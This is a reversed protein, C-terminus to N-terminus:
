SRKAGEALALLGELAARVMAADAQRGLQGGAAGQAAILRAGILRDLWAPNDDPFWYFDLCLSQTADYSARGANKLQADLKQFREGGPDAGESWAEVRGRRDEDLYDAVGVASPYYSWYRRAYDRGADRLVAPDIRDNELLGVAWARGIPDFVQQGAKGDQFRAFRARLRQVHEAGHDFPAVSIRKGGKRRKGSKTPRGSRGM